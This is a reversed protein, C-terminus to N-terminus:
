WLQYIVGTIKGLSILSKKEKITSDMPVYFSTTSKYIFCLLYLFIFATERSLFSPWIYLEFATYFCAVQEKFQFVKFLSTKHLQTAHRSDSDSHVRQLSKIIGNSHIDTLGSEERSGSDEWVSLSFLKLQRSDSWFHKHLIQLYFNNYKAAYM